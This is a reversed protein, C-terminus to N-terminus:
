QDTEDAKEDDEGSEKEVPEGTKSENQKEDSKQFETKAPAATPKETCKTVTMPESWEFKEDQAPYGDPKYVKFAYIGPKMARKSEIKYLSDSAKDTISGREIVNGDRLPKNADAIKHLEWRWRSTTLENGRNEFEAFLILPSCVSGKTETQNKLHLDSKDWREDYNCSEDTYQFDECTQVSFSVNKVDHFASSTDGTFQLCIAASLSFILSLQFLLLVKRRPKAWKQTRSLRLM